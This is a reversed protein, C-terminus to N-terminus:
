QSPRRRENWIQTLFLGIVTLAWSESNSLGSMVNGSSAKFFCFHSIERSRNFWDIENVSILNSDTDFNTLDTQERSHDNQGNLQQNM